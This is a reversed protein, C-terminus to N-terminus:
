GERDRGGGPRGPPVAARLRGRRRVPRVIGPPRCAGPRAYERRRRRYFDRHDEDAPWRRNHPLRWPTPAVREPSAVVTCFLYTGYSNKRREDSAYGGRGAAM